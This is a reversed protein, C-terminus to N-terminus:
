DAKLEQKLKEPGTKNNNFGDNENEEQLVLRTSKVFDVARQLYDGTEDLGPVFKAFKVLDSFFLIEMFNQQLSNELELPNMSNGIESTTEEMAKIFYRNELYLRLIQSLETFLKKHHAEELMEQWNQLLFELQELAIEHAPRSVEKKFLSVGQKRMRFYYFLFIMSGLIVLSFIGILIWKKYNFPINQPPKIDRIDQDEATLVSEVYIELPSSEIIQYERSSDSETFAVPFPPIIFKGTDFVSIEYDFEQQIMGEIELPDYIKYDKIEFQGLNAGPGPQHIKLQKDHQIILSYTIRDGITIVAKDVSATVTIVESSKALNPIFLAIVGIYILWIWIPQFAIEISNIKM